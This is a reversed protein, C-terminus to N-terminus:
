AIAHSKWKLILGFVAIYAWRNRFPDIKLGTCDLKSIDSRLSSLQNRLAVCFAAWGLSLQLRLTFIKVRLSSHYQPTTLEWVRKRQMNCTLFTTSIDNALMTLFFCYM